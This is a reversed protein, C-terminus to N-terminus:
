GNNNFLWVFVNRGFIDTYLDVYNKLFRIGKTNKNIKNLKQIKEWSNDISGDDIFIIENKISVTKLENLIWDHLEDLSESENLLPIIISLDM